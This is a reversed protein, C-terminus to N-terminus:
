NVNAALIDCDTQLALCTAPVSAHNHAHDHETLEQIPVWKRMTCAQCQLWCAANAEITIQLHFEQGNIHRWKCSMQELCGFKVEHWIGLGAQESIRRRSLRGLLLCYGLNCCSDQQSRFFHLSPFLRLSSSLSVWHVSYTDDKDAWVTALETM